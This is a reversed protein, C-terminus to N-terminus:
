YLLVCKICTQLFLGIENLGRAVKSYNPSSYNGELLMIVPHPPSLFSLLFLPTKIFWM